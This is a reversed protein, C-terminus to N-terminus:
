WISTEYFPLGPFEYLDDIQSHTPRKGQIYPQETVVRIRGAERSLGTIAWEFSFVDRIIEIRRVYESPLAFRRSGWKRGFSGPLTAKLVIAGDSWVEHESGVFDPLEDPIQAVLIGEAFADELVREEARFREDDRSIARTAAALRRALMEGPERFGEEPNREDKSAHGGSHHEDNEDM